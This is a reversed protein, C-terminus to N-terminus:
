VIHTTNDTAFTINKNSNVFPKIIFHYIQIAFDKM